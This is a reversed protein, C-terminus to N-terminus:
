WHITCGTMPFAHNEVEEFCNDTFVRCVLPRSTLRWHWCDELPLWQCASPPGSSYHVHLRELLQGGTTILWSMDGLPKHITYHLRRSKHIFFQVYFNISHELIYTLTERLHDALLIDGEGLKFHSFHTSLLDTSHILDVLSHSFEFPYIAVNCM